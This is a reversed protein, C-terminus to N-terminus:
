PPPPPPYIHTDLMEQGRIIYISEKELNVISGKIVHVKKRLVVNKKKKKHQTIVPNKTVNIIVRFIRKAKKTQM